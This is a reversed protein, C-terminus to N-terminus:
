ASSRMIITGKLPTKLPIHTKKGSIALMLIDFTRNVLGEYDQAITTLDPSTFRSLPHDDHGAVKLQCSPRIGVSINYKYAASLVGFAIRDNACLLTNAPFGNNEFAMCAIEFGIQEFDWSIKEISVIMPPVGAKHAAVRYAALRETANQNIKPMDIYCPPEGTRILYDYLLGISQFNDNGVFPIDTGIHSDMFVLSTKEKLATFLSTNKKSGLPAVIAGALPLSRLTEIAKRETDENGYSCLIISWYGEAACRKEIKSVIQAYFPDTITPVLIGINKPLKRNLNTAFLNPRYDHEHLANEIKKRTTIKVSDPDNFYKSLTPRSIGIVESLEDMTRINKAM